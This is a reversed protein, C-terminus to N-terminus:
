PKLREAVISPVKVTGMVIPKQHCDSGGTAILQYRKVFDLYHDTTLRDHRPHWCEVGDIYELMSEAIIRTQQKLDNSVSVLSTGHPDNPHALILIGGADRILKSAEPLSLPYKPVDCKVLYKDFAEQVNRVIGKQVLYNAIHPRGFTGDVSERINRMDVATLPHIRERTLEVNVKQMIERARLERHERLVQLKKRLASNDIDFGYGLFDLSISKGQTMQFTVNLEIGTVFRIDYEKALIIAKEQADLSDHDTVSILNLNRNKAERLVDEVPLAGDSGTKTHIHLDIKM